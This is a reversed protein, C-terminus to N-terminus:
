PNTHRMEATQVESAPLLDAGGLRIIEATQAARLMPESEPWRRSALYIATKRMNEQAFREIGAHPWPTPTHALQPAPTQTNTKM